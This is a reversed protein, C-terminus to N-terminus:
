REITEFDPMFPIDEYKIVDTTVVLYVIAFLVGGLVTTAAMKKWLHPKSPASPVTGPTVNGDEEQTRVGFPLVMFLALWWCIFYTALALSLEM